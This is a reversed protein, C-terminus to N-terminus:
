NKQRRQMCATESIPDYWVIHLAHAYVQRIVSSNTHCHSKQKSHADKGLRVVKSHISWCCKAFVFIINMEKGEIKFAM